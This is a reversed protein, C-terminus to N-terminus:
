LTLEAATNTYGYARRRIREEIDTGSNPAPSETSKLIATM